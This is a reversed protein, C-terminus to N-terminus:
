CICRTRGPLTTLGRGHPPSTHSCTRHSDTLLLAHQRTTHRRAPSGGPGKGERGEVGEGGGGKRRRRRGGRAKGERTKTEWGGRRAGQRPLGTRGHPSAVTRISRNPLAFTVTFVVAATVHTLTYNFSALAEASVTRHLALSHAQPCDDPRVTSSAGTAYARARLLSASVDPAPPTWPSCTHSCSVAALPQRTFLLCHSRREEYSPTSPPGDTCWAPPRLTLSRRGALMPECNWVGSLKLQRVDAGSRPHTKKPPVHFKPGPPPCNSPISPDPRGM